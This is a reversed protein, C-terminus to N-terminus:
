KGWTEMIQVYAPGGIVAFLVPLFFLIMPVTMLSPLAAAKKEAATMRLTRNEKAMVRLVEGVPTGYLEAQILGVTVAKVGEHGTRNALNEYAMRRAPLYSLEAVTLALEDALATSATSIEVGVKSLAVEVSMGSEACLLLMDLADPFVKMIEKLRASGKNNLYLSPAYYGLAVFGAVALFRMTLSWSGLGGLVFIWFLGFLAFAGMLVMRSVYYYSSASKGRIGARMLKLSLQEDVLLTSLNLKKEIDKSMGAEKNRISGKGSSANRQQRLREREDAINKMRSELDNEEVYSVAIYYLTIVLAVLAGLSILFAPNLFTKAITEM